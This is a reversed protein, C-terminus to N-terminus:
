RTSMRQFNLDTRTMRPANTMAVLLIIINQRISYLNSITLISLASVHNTIEAKNAGIPNTKCSTTASAIVTSATGFISSLPFVISKLIKFDKFTDICNNPRTEIIKPVTSTEISLKITNESEDM